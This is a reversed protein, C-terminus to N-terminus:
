KKNNKLFWHIKEETTTFNVPIKTMSQIIEQKKYGLSLLAEVVEDSEDMKGIVSEGGLNSIKSKLDLIIKAAVKKGIGPVAQFFSIDDSLIASIIKDESNGSLIAMGAKPGVGNVGILKQFLELESFTKFGYFDDCDERINEHIFLALEKNEEINGVNGPTFIKYGVGSVDLILFAPKQLIIKGSLYSIM